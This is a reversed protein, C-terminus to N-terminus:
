PNLKSKENFYSKNNLTMYVTIYIRRIRWRHQLQLFSLTKNLPLRLSIFTSINEYLIDHYRLKEIVIPSFRVVKLYTNVYVAKGRSKDTNQVIRPIFIIGDTTIIYSDLLAQELSNWLTQTTGFIQNVNEFVFTYNLFLFYLVKM